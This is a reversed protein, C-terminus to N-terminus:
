KRLLVAIVESHSLCHFFCLYDNKVSMLRILYVVKSVNLKVPKRQLGRELYRMDMASHRALTTLLACAHDKYRLFSLIYLSIM